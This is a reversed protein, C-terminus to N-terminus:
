ISREKIRVKALGLFGAPGEYSRRAAGAEIAVDLAELEEDTLVGVFMGNVPRLIRKAEEPTM